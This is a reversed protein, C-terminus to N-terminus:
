VSQCSKKGPKLIFGLFCWEAQGPFPRPATNQYGVSFCGFNKGM